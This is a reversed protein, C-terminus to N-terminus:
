DLSLPLKYLRATNEYLLRGKERASVGALNKNIMKWSDPYTSTGHPYDSAWLINDTGIADRSLLGFQEYWFHVYVRGRFSETPRTRVGETWLRYSEWVTDCIELLSSLWGMGTEACVWKLRPYRDVLGSLFLNPLFQPQASFAAARRLVQNEIWSDPLLKIGAHAHWHIPVDLEQCLALLPDWYRDNLHRLGPRAMSPEAVMVVGYHGRGVAREVERTVIKIDSLYPLIALPIFRNSVQGWEALADNYAQVCALEFDSDTHFPLTASDIPDNFFLVEADVGDTDLAKLRQQPDYVIKPVEDWRQPFTGRLSGNMAAPCNCVGRKGVVRGDVVWREVLRGNVEVERVQPIRDGWKRKSMRCTFADRALQAHSDASIAGYKIKVEEM